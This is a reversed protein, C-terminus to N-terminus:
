KPIEGPRHERFSTGRVLSAPSTKITDSLNRLNDTTVRMNAMIDDFNASNQSTMEQLQGVLVTTKALTEHLTVLSAHLDGRNDAILTDLHALLQDARGSAQKVDQLLPGMKGSVDEANTLTTTLKPRVDDLLQRIQTLADAVNSRNADSLLDDARAIVASINARNKDNLLDNARALTTQLGDLNSDLKALVSQVQPAVGQLLDGLQSLSFSEASPLVSGAPAIAGAKPGASIEAYSDSLPGLSAVRAVSTVRVPTERDVLLDVEIRAPDAPDVRVREVRGVRLGEYRVATGPQLGAAFKFFTRYRLGSSTLGGGIAVLTGVLLVACALVFIGVIVHGRNTQPKM